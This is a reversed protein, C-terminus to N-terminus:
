SFMRMFTISIANYAMHALICPTVSKTLKFSTALVLGIVCAGLVEVISGYAFHMLGFLLASAIIGTRQTLFGRFFLEETIPAGVVAFILVILPLSAIKDSVKEQDNFGLLIAMIGLAFLVLFIASLTMAGYFVGDKLRGPFGIASFTSKLDKKWLFFLALSLLGLHIAGSGAYTAYEGLPQCIGADSFQCALVSIFVLISFISLILFFSKM